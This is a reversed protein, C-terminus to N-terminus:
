ADCPRGLALIAYMMLTNGLYLFYEPLWLPLLAGLALLAAIWAFARLPLEGYM